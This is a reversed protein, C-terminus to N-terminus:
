KNEGGELAKIEDRLQAALEFNQQAVAIDMEKRLEEAKSQPTQESVPPEPAAASETEQPKDTKDSEGVSRSVKGSHRIKGHIRQLSPLLKDYFTDYCEACGLKGDRVIDDFTCGCKKCRVATGQGISPLMDGFFNSFFESINLNFDSFMDNCGLLKACESCLHTETM